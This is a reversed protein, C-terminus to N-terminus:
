QDRRRLAAFEPPPPVVPRQDFFWPRTVVRQQGLLHVAQQPQAASPRSRTAAVGVSVGSAFPEASWGTTRAAELNPHGLWASAGSGGNM